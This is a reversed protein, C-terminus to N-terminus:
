IGKAMITILDRETREMELALEEHEGPVFVPPVYQTYAARTTQLVAAEIQDATASQLWHRDIRVHEALGQLSLTVSVPGRKVHTKEGQLDAWRVEKPDRQRLEQAREHLSLMREQIAPLDAWTLPSDPDSGQEETPEPLFPDPSGVRVSAAMLAEQFADDLSRNAGLVDRWRPSVHVKTLHRTEEDVWVRVATRSDPFGHSPHWQAETAEVPDDVVPAAEALVDGPPALLEDDYQDDTM